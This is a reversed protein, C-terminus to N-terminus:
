RQLITKHEVKGQGGELNVPSGLGTQYGALPIGALIANGRLMIELCVWLGSNHQDQARVVEINEKACVM